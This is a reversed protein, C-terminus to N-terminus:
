KHFEVPTAWLNRGDTYPSHGFSVWYLYANPGITNYNRDQFQSPATADFLLPYQMATVNKSINAPLDSKFEFRNAISWSILDKSSAFMFENSTTSTGFRGRTNATRRQKDVRDNEDDYFSYCGLSVVFKQLYDSWVLGYPACGDNPLNVMKCIHQSETGPEMSYASVMEVSFDNKEDLCRWSTPDSIDATRAVSIGGPQLGVTHKNWMLMYFMGDKPSRILSPACWGFGKRNMDYVYPVAAILHHPPPRAHQWSLGWDHSVALGIHTMYCYPYSLNKACKGFHDGPYETNLLAYVTGNDFAYPADLFEDGAYFAPDPNGAMNWSVKCERSQQLPTKGIMVHFNTSGTVMHTTENNDQFINSPVDPIDIIHCKHYTDVASWIKVTDGAVTLNIGMSPSSSSEETVVRIGPFPSIYSNYKYLGCLGAVTALVVQISSREIRYLYVM